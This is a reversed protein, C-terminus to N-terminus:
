SPLTTPRSSLPVKLSTWCGRCRRGNTNAWGRRTPEDLILVDPSLAVARAIAARQDEGRSRQSWQDTRNVRVGLRELLQRASEGRGLGVDLVDNATGRLYTSTTPVFVVHRRLSSEELEGLPHEGVYALEGNPNDLRALSRL